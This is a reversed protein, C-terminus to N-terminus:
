NWDYMKYDGNDSSLKLINQDEPIGKFYAGICGTTCRHGSLLINVDRKGYTGELEKMFSLVRGMYQQIDEVGKYITSDPVIGALTVEEKKLRDAEGIDFVDLRQDILAKKGTVIEATQIAREQPSSFVYDFRFDKLKERVKEAQKLGVENLPLGLRGQMRGEKNLDTQGHRVVYIM